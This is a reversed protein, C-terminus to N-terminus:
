MEMKVKEMTEAIMLSPLKMPMMWVVVVVVMLAVMVEWYETQNENEYM